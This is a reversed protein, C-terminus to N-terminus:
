GERLARVFLFVPTTELITRIGPDVDGCPEPQPEDVADIAFGTARLSGVVASFPRWM